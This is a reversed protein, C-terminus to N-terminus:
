GKLRRLADTLERGLKEVSRRQEDQLNGGEDFACDKNAQMISTDIHAQILIEFRVNRIVECQGGGPLPAPIASDLRPKAPSAIKRHLM